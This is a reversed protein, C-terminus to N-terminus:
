VKPFIGRPFIKKLWKKFSLRVPKYVYPSYYLPALEVIVNFESIKEEIESTAPLRKGATNNLWIYDSFDPSLCRIKITNVHVHIKKNLDKITDYWQGKYIVPYSFSDPLYPLRKDRLQTLTVKPSILASSRMNYNRLINEEKESLTNYLRGPYKVSAEKRMNREVMELDKRSIPGAHFIVSYYFEGSFQNFDNVIKGYSKSVSLGRLKLKQSIKIGYTHCRFLDRM